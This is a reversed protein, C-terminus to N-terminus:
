FNVQYASAQVDFMQAYRGGLSMLEHHSGDEIIKGNELVLIRDALKVTNFRHTILLSLKGQTLTKYHDFLAAEAEPDLAATPEDLLIPANRYLARALAIRQWQGGSLETGHNDFSKSLPTKLSHELQEVIESAGALQIAQTMKSEDVDSFLTINEELSFSFRGFDQMITAIKKRYQDIDLEKIDIGDILIRGSQPEYLRTILKVLTTKGAGNIGVLATAQGMKLELNLNEFIPLKAGAYTFCLNELRIGHQIPQPIEQPSKPTKIQPIKALFAFTNRLFLSHEAISGLDNVIQGLTNRLQSYAIVFFSFEGLTLDNNLTKLAAVMVVTYQTIIMLGQGWFAGWNQHATSKIIHKTSQQYFLQLQTDFIPSLQNLRIEKAYTAQTLMEELYGARRAEPTSDEFAGFIQVSSSSAFILAPIIAVLVCLALIPEIVGLSSMFAAVTLVGAILQIISIVLLVPRFGSEAWALQFQMLQEPHEFFELDQRSAQRAMSLKLFANVRHRITEQLYIRWKFAALTLLALGGELVVLVFMESYSKKQIITDLLLKATWAMAVPFLSSMAIAFVIKWVSLRDAQILLKWVQPLATFAQVSKGLPSKM